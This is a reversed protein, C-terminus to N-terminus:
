VTRAIYAFMGPGTHVGLVPTLKNIQINRVNLSTKLQEALQKAKELDDGYHIVMDILKDEFKKQLIQRMQVLSRQLGIKKGLTEYVGDQNVTIIPKIKLSDGITGEVKGIRGGARLYKLTKITYLAISNKQRLVDLNKVVEDIKLGKALLEIAEEVLIGQQGALTKSNYHTIEIGEVDELVVRFANFTGSLGDSINIVLIHDYGEDKIMEITKIMDSMEPLSTTVDHTDLAAYTDDASIEVQDKFSVGDKIINLPVYYLNEHSNIYDLPLNSGSDTIVAVKM